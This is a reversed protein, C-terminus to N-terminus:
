SPKYFGRGRSWQIRINNHSYIRKVFKWNAGCHECIFHKPNTFVTIYKSCIKDFTKSCKDCKFEYVM